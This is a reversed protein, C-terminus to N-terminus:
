VIVQPKFHFKDVFLSKIIYRGLVVLFLVVTYVIVGVYLISLSINDSTLVHSTAVLFVEDLNCVIIKSSLM